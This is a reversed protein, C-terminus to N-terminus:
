SLLKRQLHSIHEAFQLKSFGGNVRRRKGSNVDMYVGTEELTHLEGAAVIAAYTEVEAIMTIGTTSSHAILVVDM